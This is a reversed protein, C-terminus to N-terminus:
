ALLDALTQNVQSFATNGSGVFLIQQAKPRNSLNKALEAELENYVKLRQKLLDVQEAEKHTLNTALFETMLSDIQRNFRGLAFIISSPQPKTQSSINSEVFLRKSYVQSTLKGIIATPVLHDKYTSASTQQIQSVRRRSLFFSTLTLGLLSAIM